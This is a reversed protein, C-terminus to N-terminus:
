IHMVKCFPVFEMFFMLSKRYSILAIKANYTQPIILNNKTTSELLVHYTFKVTEISFIGMIPKKLHCLNHFIFFQKQPSNFGKFTNMGLGVWKERKLTSFLIYPVGLLV